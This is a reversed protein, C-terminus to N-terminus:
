LHCGQNLLFECGNGAYKVEAANCTVRRRCVQLRLVLKWRQIFFCRRDELRQLFNDKFQAHHDKIQVWKEDSVDDLVLLLDKLRADHCKYMDRCEQKVTKVDTARDRPLSYMCPANTNYYRRIAAISDKTAHEAAVVYDRMQNCLIEDFDDHAFDVGATETATPMDTIRMANAKQCRSIAENLRRRAQATHDAAVVAAQNMSNSSM